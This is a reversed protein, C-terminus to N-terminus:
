KRGCGGESVVSAALCTSFENRRRRWKTRTLNVTICRAPQPRVGFDGVRLRISVAGSLCSSAVLRRNQDGPPRARPLMPPRSPCLFSLSPLFVPSHALWLEMEAEAERSRGFPCARGGGVTSTGGGGGEEGRERWSKREAEGGEDGERGPSHPERGHDAGKTSCSNMGEDGPQARMRVGGRDMAMVAATAAAM